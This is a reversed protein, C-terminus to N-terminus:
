RHFLRRWPGAYQLAELIAKSHWDFSVDPSDLVHERIGRSEVLDFLRDIRRNSLREYIRRATYGVRLERGIASRWAKEYQALARASLDDSVIARHLTDAAIGACLLGYYVGGGTTPKVQGAADGVVLVRDCYSRRLPRLPIGGSTIGVDPSGIKDQGYLFALLGKLHGVPSRRCFLGALAKGSATPVLWAFFGPAIDQDFYIEVEDVGDVDVETQAGVMFDGVKGLGLQRPLRSYFGSAIVAASAEFAEGGDTDVRVRDDLASVENVRVGTFYNVGEGKATEALSRDFATRDIIYAQTDGRSLRIETRSPSFLKASRAERLISGGFLPFREVCEAGVIGTCQMPMGIDPHEEFVSVSHGSRALCLAAYSGVPGAGVVLVDDM